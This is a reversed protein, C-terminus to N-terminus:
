FRPLQFAVDSAMMQRKLVQGENLYEQTHDKENKNQIALMQAQLKLGQGTARLQQNMVHIMVGLSEATLKSAGGPSVSHSASKINDGVGDLHGTYEDLNNNFTIAEAAVQDSNRQVPAVPSNPVAGFLQTILRAAQSVSSAQGYLHADIPIGATQALYLSDNIGRNIQELLGLEDSGNSVVSRIEMLEEITEALIQTLVGVDAGFVDAQAPHTRLVQLAIVAIAIVAGPPRFLRLMRM